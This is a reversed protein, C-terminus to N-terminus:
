ENVYRLSQNRGREKSRYMAVDANKILQKTDVADDPYLTLGISASVTLEIDDTKFPQVVSELIKNAVNEATQGDIIDPLLINFEDGGIRAIVDSERLTKQLRRAVEKLLEDGVEHGYEDNVAKFRDLDLYLLALTQKQRKCQKIALDLQDKFLRRNALGTLPDYFALLEMYEQEQKLATIDEGVCILHTVEDLTNRIPAISSMVWFLEGNRHQFQREGRWVEGNQLVKRILHDLEERDDEPTFITFPQGKLEQSSYGTADFLSKNAYEIVKTDDSIVVFSASYEIAQSLMSLQQDMQSSEIAIAALHANVIMLEMQNASPEAQHRYYIAFTGLVKNHSNKIPMSWCAELGAKAALQTFDQWFPHCSINSIIVPRGTFAATGCSGIGDGISLGHIAVNYFDPLSPAAGLQLTETKEDILLISCLLGPYLEETFTVLALLIDDLPEGQALQELIFNRHKDIKDQQNQATIDESITLIGQLEKNFSLLPLKQTRILCNEGSTHTMWRAQSRKSGSRLVLGDQETLSQHIQSEFLDGTQHGIVDQRSVGLFDLYSQNCEIYRGEKDKAAIFQPLQDILLRLLQHNEELRKKDKEAKFRLNNHLRYAYRLRLLSATLAASILVSFGLLWWLMINQQIIDTQVTLDALNM